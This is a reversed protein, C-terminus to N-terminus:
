RPYGVYMTGKTKIGGIGKIGYKTNEIIGKLDIDKTVDSLSIKAAVVAPDLAHINVRKPSSAFTAGAKILEEFNSQCAGAIIILKDHSKEYKRAEKVAEIFNDSNKYSSSSKYYADHGTIVVISPNYEELLDRIQYPLRDEQELIGIAWIDNQNYYKLCRNLYDEDGDIHLIKGPLYFYDNRNKPALSNIRNLYEEEEEDEKVDPCLELDEKPSDAYLRVNAGKLYCVENIIDTIVFVIDHDYSKRTVLDGIKYEMYDGVYNYTFIKNKLLLDFPFLPM